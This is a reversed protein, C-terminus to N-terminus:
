WTGSWVVTACTLLCAFQSCAACRNVTQVMWKWKKQRRVLKKWLWVNTGTSSPTFPFHPTHVDPRPRILKPTYICSENLGENVPHTRDSKPVCYCASNHWILPMHGIEVPKSVWNPSSVVCKFQDQTLFLFYIFLFFSMVTACFLLQHRYCALMQTWMWTSYLISLSSLSSIKLKLKMETWGRLM